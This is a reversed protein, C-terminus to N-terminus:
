STAATNALKISRVKGTTAKSIKMEDDPSIINLGEGDDGWVFRPRLPNQTERGGRFLFRLLELGDSM